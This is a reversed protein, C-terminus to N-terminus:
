CRAALLLCRAALLWCSAEPLDEEQLARVGTRGALVAEWVAQVGVGLPTVLGLGTVVVRRPAAVPPAGFPDDAGAAAAAASSLHRSLAPVLQGLLGPLRCLPYAAGVLGQLAAPAGRM